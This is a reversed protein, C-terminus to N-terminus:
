GLSQQQHGVDAPKRHTHQRQHFILKVSPETLGQFNDRVRFLHKRTVATIRAKHLTRLLSTKSIFHKNRERSASKRVGNIGIGAFLLLFALWRWWWDCCCSGLLWGALWRLWWWWLWWWWLWWWAACSFLWGSSGAVIARVADGWSSARCASDARSSDSSRVALRRCKAQVSTNSGASRRGRIAEWINSSDSFSGQPM